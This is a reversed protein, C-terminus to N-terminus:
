RSNVPPLRWRIAAQMTFLRNTRAGTEVIVGYRQGSAIEISTVNPKPKILRGDVEVVTMTHKRIGFIITSLSTAGILRMLYKRRPKLTLVFNRRGNILLNTPEGIWQFPSGLIGNEQTVRDKGEWHDSFLIPGSPIERARWEHDPDIIILPGFATTFQLGSHSHYFYTGAPYAYFSYTFTTGRPIPMQTFFAVGDMHPTKRQHMGHFHVTLEEDTDLANHVHVVIIDHINARIIPGPLQENVLVVSSVNNEFAFTLNYTRYTVAAYIPNPIFCLIVGLFFM